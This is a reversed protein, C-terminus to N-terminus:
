DQTGNKPRVHHFSNDGVLQGRVKMYLYICVCDILLYYISSYIFLTHICIYM